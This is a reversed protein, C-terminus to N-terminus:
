ELLKERVFKAVAERQAGVARWDIVAWDKREPLGPLDAPPASDPRLPIQRSPGAALMGEVRRSTLWDILKRGADPNPGGKVLAVTNPLIYTKEWPAEGAPFVMTVDKGARQLKLVDDTDTFGVAYQGDAVLGAAASNSAAQFSV